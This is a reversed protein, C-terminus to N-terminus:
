GLFEIDVEKPDFTAAGGNYEMHGTVHASLGMVGRDVTFWVEQVSKYIDVDWHHTYPHSSGILGKTGKTWRQESKTIKGTFRVKVRGIRDAAEHALTRQEAEVAQAALMAKKEDSTPRWSQKGRLLSAEISAKNYEETHHFLQLIEESFERATLKSPKPVFISMWTSHKM